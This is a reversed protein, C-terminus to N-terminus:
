PKYIREIVTWVGGLNAVLINYLGGTTFSLTTIGAGSPDQVAVTNTPDMHVFRIWEISGTPIGTADIKWICGAPTTASNFLHEVNVASILNVGTLTPAAAIRKTARVYSGFTGSGTASITAGTIANAVAL